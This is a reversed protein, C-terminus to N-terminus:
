RASGDGELPRVQGTLTNGDMQAPTATLNRVFITAYGSDNRVKNGRVLIHPTPRDVGDEGISVVVAHNSAHPGKEFTDGDLEVGGGNPVDVQYSATGDPGDEISTDRVVTELARSKIGHGDRTATITSHEVDLRGIVGVYIAHGCGSGNVCSGNRDFVSDTVTIAAERNDAALIGDQNDIFHVGRVALNGGEARIGAGNGDAVRARTLTMDAVVDDRGDVVLLAKGGCTKDTLVTAPGAGQVTVRDARLTACEYYTGPAITVVDGPQAAEIASEITPHATGTGAAITAAAAARAFLLLAAASVWTKLLKDLLAKTM